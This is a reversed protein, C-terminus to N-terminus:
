GRCDQVHLLRQLVQRWGGDPADFSFKAQDGDPDAATATTTGGDYLVKVEDGAAWSVKRAGSEDAAGLSTKTMETNEVSAILTISGATAPNDPNNDHTTSETGDPNGENFDEETKSCAVAALSVMAAIAFFRIINKKM